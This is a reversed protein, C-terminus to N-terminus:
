RRMVWLNRLQQQCPRPIGRSFTLTVKDGRGVGGIWGHRVGNRTCAEDMEALFNATVKGRTVRLAGDEIKVLFAYRTAAHYIM